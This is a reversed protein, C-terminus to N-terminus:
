YIQKKSCIKLNSINVKEIVNKKTLNKLFSNIKTKVERDIYNNKMFLHCLYKAKEIIFSNNRCSNNLFWVMLEYSAIKKDHFTNNTKLLVYEIYNLFSLCIANEKSKLTKKYSYNKKLGLLEM